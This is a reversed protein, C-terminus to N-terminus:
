GQGRLWVQTHSCPSSKYLQLISEGMSLASDMDGEGDGIAVDGTIIVIVAAGGVGVGVDVDDVDAVGVDITEIDTARRWANTLPIYGETQLIFMDM